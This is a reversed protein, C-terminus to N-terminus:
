SSGTGMEAAMRDGVLGWTFNALAHARASDRLRRYAAPDDFLQMMKEVVEAVTPPANVICGSVGDLVLEPIGFSRPAIAPCGFYQAEIIVQPTADRVTPHVLAFASSLLEQLRALDAPVSKRLLGEYAIGDMTLVTAPPSEGVIRLTANPHQQRIQRFADVCLQGGKGKFDLAIFLFESGGSYVDAEPIPVHGGMGVVRFTSPDLDYAAVASDMAWKSSFFVRHAARLWAREQHGIRDLDRQDFENRDHYVTLYTAFCVDLFCAYPVESHYAIWPTSGHFFSLRANRDVGRAVLRAISAIRRPSFFAFSGPRGISRNLKSLVKARLDEQPSVPGVYALSFHRELSEFIAANFGSWGGSTETLALNSVYNARTLSSAQSM